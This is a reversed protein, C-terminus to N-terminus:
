ENMQLQIDLVANGMSDKKIKLLYENGDDGVLIVKKAKITDFDAKVSSECSLLTLAIAFFLFKMKTKMNM